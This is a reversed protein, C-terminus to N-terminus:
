APRTFSINSALCALLEKKFFLVLFSKSVPPQPSPTALARLLLLKKPEKKEFFSSRVQMLLWSPFGHVVFSKEAALEVGQVSLAIVADEGVKFPDGAGEGDGGLVGGAALARDRDPAGVVIEAHALV